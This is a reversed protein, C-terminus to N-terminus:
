DLRGTGVPVIRGAYRPALAASRDKYGLMFEDGRVVASYSETRSWGAGTHQSKTDSARPHFWGGAQLRVTTGGPPQRGSDSRPGGIRPHPFRREGRLRPCRASLGACSRARAARKRWVRRQSADPSPQRDACLATFLPEKSAAVASALPLLEQVYVPRVIEKVTERIEVLQAAGTSAHTELKRREAWDYAKDHHAVYCLLLSGSSRHVILRIDSNVRVSWFNRDRVKDLKHFSLGPQAPNLQLDFATTKVAKQEDGTLRALSDTFTDAIRFDM